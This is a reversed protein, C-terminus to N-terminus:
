RFIPSYTEANEPNLIYSTLHTYPTPHLPTPHLPTPHLTYPHSTRLTPHLTYPTPHLTYPTPSHLSPHLTYPTPHRSRLNRCPRRARTPTLARPAHPNRPLLVDFPLCSPRRVLLRSVQIGSVGSGLGKSWLDHMGILGQGRFGWFFVEAGLGQVGSATVCRVFSAARGGVPRRPSVPPSTSAPASLPPASRRCTRCPRSCGAGPPKHSQM